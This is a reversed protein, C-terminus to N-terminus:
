NYRANGPRRRECRMTLSTEIDIYPFCKLRSNQNCNYIRPIWDERSIQEMGQYSIAYLSKDNHSVDYEDFHRGNDEYYDYGLLYIPSGGLLIATHLATCGAGGGFLGDSFSRGVSKSTSRMTGSIEFTSINRSVEFVNHHTHKPGAEPGAIIMGNYDSLARAHTIQAATDVFHMISPHFYEIVRNIGITIKGNLRSFDFGRLSSGTSIVYIPLEQYLNDLKATM